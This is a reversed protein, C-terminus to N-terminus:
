IPTEAYCVVQHWAVFVGPMFCAKLHSPSKLYIWHTRFSDHVPRQVARLM